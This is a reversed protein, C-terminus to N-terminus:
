VCTFTDWSFYKKPIKANGTDNVDYVDTFCQFYRINGHIDSFLPFLKWAHSNPGPRATQRFFHPTFIRLVGDRYQLDPLAVPAILLYIEVRERM